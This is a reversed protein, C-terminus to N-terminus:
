QEPIKYTPDACASTNLDDRLGALIGGRKRFDVTTSCGIAESLKLQQAWSLDAM